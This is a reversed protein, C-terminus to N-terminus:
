AYMTNLPGLEQVSKEIMKEVESLKTVDAIAVTSKRGLKKIEESVEKCGAENAPVDNVTM